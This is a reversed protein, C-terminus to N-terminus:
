RKYANMRELYRYVNAQESGRILNSIATTAEEIKEAPGIIGVTNGNLVISCGSIEEITRKTRGEKGVIRARVFRLSKRKTFNKVQIKRFVNSEDKLVLAKKASFGMEIAELVMVAEYERVPEGSVVAKRGELSIEVGLAKELKQKEKRAENIRKLFIIEM